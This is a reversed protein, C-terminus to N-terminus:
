LVAKYIGTMLIGSPSGKFNTYKCKIKGHTIPKLIMCFKDINDKDGNKNLRYCRM